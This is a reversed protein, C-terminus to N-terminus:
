EGDANRRGMAGGDNEWRCLAIEDEDTELLIAPPLEWDFSMQADRNLFQPLSKPQTAM